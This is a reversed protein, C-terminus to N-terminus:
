LAKIEIYKIYKGKNKSVNEDNQNTVYPVNRRLYCSVWTLIVVM